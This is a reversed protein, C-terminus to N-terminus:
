FQLIPDHELLQGGLVSQSLMNGEIHLSRWTEGKFFLTCLNFKNM